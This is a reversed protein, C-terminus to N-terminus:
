ALSPAFFRRKTARLQNNIRERVAGPQVRIFDDGAMLSRRMYRSFDLIVGSGIAAAGGSTGSGRFHLTLGKEAAYRAIAAVDQASRPWAVAVPREEFPGGDFSYLQLIVDDCRADGRILGRLDDQLRAQNANLPELAM